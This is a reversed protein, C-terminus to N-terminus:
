EESPMHRKIGGHGSCAGQSTRAFSYVGDRCVYNPAFFIRNFLYRLSYPAPFFVSLVFIIICAYASLKLVKHWFDYTLFKRAPVEELAEGTPIEGEKELGLVSM